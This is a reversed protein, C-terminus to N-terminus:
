TIPAESGDLLSKNIVEALEDEVNKLYLAKFLCYNADDTPINNEFEERTIVPQTVLIELHQPNKEIAAQKPAQGPMYMFIDGNVIAVRLTDMKHYKM